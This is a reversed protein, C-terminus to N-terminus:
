YCSNKHAEWDKKQCANGCYVGIPCKECMYEAPSECLICQRITFLPNEYKLQLKFGLQFLRIIIESANNNDTIKQNRRNATITSEFNTYCFDLIHKFTWDNDNKANPYLNSEIMFNATPRFTVTITKFKFFYLNMLNTPNPHTVVYYALYNWMENPHIQNEAPFDRQFWQNWLYLTHEYFEKSMISAAYFEFPSIYEIIKEQLETPLKLFEQIDGETELGRVRKM